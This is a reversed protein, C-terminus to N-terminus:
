IGVENGGGYYYIKEVMWERETAYLTVATQKTTPRNNNSM